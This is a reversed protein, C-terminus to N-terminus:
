SVSRQINLRMQNDYKLHYDLTHFVRNKNILGKLFDVRGKDWAEQGIVPVFERTLNETHKQFIEWPQGLRMMDLDSMYACGHLLDEDNTNPLEHHKTSRIMVEAHYLTKVDGGYYKDGTLRMHMLAASKSENDQAGPVYIVDHYVIAAMLAHDYRCHFDRSNTIMEEIHEQNHYFRSLANYEDPIAISPM